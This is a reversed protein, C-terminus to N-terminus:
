SRAALWDPTNDERNDEQNATLSGASGIVRDFMMTAREVKANEAGLSPGIQSALHWSLAEIFTPSFSPIHKIDDTYLVQPSEKDTFMLMTDNTPHHLLEFPYDPMDRREKVIGRFAIMSSPLVYGAAWQRFTVDEIKPVTRSRRAFFWDFKELAVTRSINYYTNCVAAENTRDGESVSRVRARLAVKALAMNYIDAEAINM